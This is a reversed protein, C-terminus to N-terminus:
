ESSVRVFEILDSGAGEDACEDTRDTTGDL